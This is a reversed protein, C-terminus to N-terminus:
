RIWHDKKDVQVSQMKLWDLVVINRLGLQRMDNGKVTVSLWLEEQTKGEKVSLMPAVFNMVHISM